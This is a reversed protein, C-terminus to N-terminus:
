IWADKLQNFHADVEKVYNNHKTIDQSITNKQFLSHVYDFISNKMTFNLLIIGTFISRSVLIVNTIIKTVELLTTDKTKHRIIACMANLFCCSAYCFIFPIMKKAIKSNEFNQYQQSLSFVADEKFKNRAKDIAVRHLHYHIPFSITAIILICQDTFLPVLSTPFDFIVIFITLYAVINFAVVFKQASVSEYRKSLIVALFREFILLACNLTAVNNGCVYFCFFVKYITFTFNMQYHGELILIGIVGISTSISLLLIFFIISKVNIHFVNSKYVKYIAFLIFISSILFLVIFLYTLGLM